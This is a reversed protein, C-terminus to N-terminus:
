YSATANPSIDGRFLGNPDVRLRVLDVAAIQDADLHRQPQDRGGVLSPITRGTDWPAMAARVVAARARGARAAEEDAASGICQCVFQERVHDLVGGHPDPVTMAGGLQRLEAALLPSDSGTAELFAAIAADDVGDLLMHDSTSPVPNPPDMHTQPVDAPGADHWTDMVPDAIARLPGLLGDFVTRAETLDASRSLVVGDLCVTPGASLVAPIGPVAPLNVIRLSTSVSNPADVTWSRWAPVLESAHALPWFSAGTIVAPVEYLAIEVATVVGFGGGGGRLAWFLDADHDADVRVVSGDAVVLEIARVTNPALGLERGYFSVGGRLLYGVVGVSSATGHASVLGHPSTAAVVDGWLAGAPVRAIRNAVDVEVDGALATRVLLADAMSGFSPAAHGTTHARVGLGNAVAHRVAHQVDAVTRATTAAAPSPPAALNFTRTAATFAPDGPRGIGTTEDDPETM